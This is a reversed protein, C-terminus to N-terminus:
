GHNVRSPTPARLDNLPHCVLGVVERTPEAGLGGARAIAACERTTVLEQAEVFGLAGLGGHVEADLTEVRTM